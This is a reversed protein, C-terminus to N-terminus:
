PRFRFAEVPDTGVPEHEHRLVAEGRTPPVHEPRDLGLGPLEAEFPDPRM